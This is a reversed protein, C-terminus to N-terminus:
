KVLELIQKFESAKADALLEFIATEVSTIIAGAQRMKEVGIKYNAKTRSSIADKAVHVKYGAVLLDHVTQNVCIHSEVGCVLATPRGIESMKDRFEDSGCCSFATKGIRADEPLAELVEPIMDGMREPYQLTAVTPLGLIKAARILTVSNAVVREREFISRLFPEQLDVVVLTTNNKDLLDPHRM